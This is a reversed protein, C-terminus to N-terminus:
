NLMKKAEEQNKSDEAAQQADLKAIMEEAAKIEQDSSDSSEMVAKLQAMQDANNKNQIDTIGKLLEENSTDGFEEDLEHLKEEIQDDSLDPNLKRVADKRTLLKLARLDKVTAVKEQESEIPKADRYSIEIEFDDSFQGLAREEEDLANMEFLWNHWAAIHKWADKEAQKLIPKQQEVVELTDSMEILAQFGSTINKASASGGISNVSMDNTTLLLGILDQVVKNYQDLPSSAQVYQISPMPADNTAKLWIARNLGIKLNRPEEESIISLLSFGQHKAISLIDSMALQAVLCIDIQDGGQMAWPTNDRDQALNVIPMMGIPNTYDQADASEALRTGNADATFHEEPTWFIFNRDDIEPTEDSAVLDKASKAM